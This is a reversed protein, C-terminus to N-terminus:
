RPVNRLRFSRRSYALASRSAATELLYLLEGFIRPLNGRNIEDIDPV